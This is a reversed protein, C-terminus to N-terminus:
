DDTLNSWLAAQGILPWEREADGRSFPNTALGLYRSGVLTTGHVIIPASEAKRDRDQWLGAVFTSDVSPLYRGDVTAGTPLSAFWTVNSPLYLNDRAPYAGTLPSSAGVNDWLAIGGGAGDSGQTLNGKILAPHAGALFAFNSASQSTAIYGGGREFFARLRDRATNGQPYTQGVNYIVDFSELPDTAANQLSNSGSTTSVFGVDPGFIQRLSWSTDSEVPNGSDVLIAIRPAEDLQTGAPTMGLGREFFVGAAKGAAELAVVTAADDPFIVSGAPMSGTSVSTFAAEAVEGDVGSRLVDLVARLEATGKVTLAYWDAPGSRVGGQLENVDTAPTTAPNFSADDAPIEVVDAGWLSGHSWAGPPAYLQSIRESIDQGATLATYAFGRFAQRMSVIYSGAPFTTGAWVVDAQTRGVEVGNHLLWEVLRNAEADSRQAGRHPSVQDATGGVFPIVFAKPYEVMWNHQNETFGRGAVLPDDCCNVRAAGTVGRRFIELQDDLIASRNGLWFRASSYFVLYQERKSGLRGGCAADDCMEVTSGDVGFFAGYTQSYFPGWDDWGEAVEPGGNKSGSVGRADWQNVPRQISRGIAEIAAQNADLRRQNWYLFKDYEFGPNHPKTLGDVLTPNYYGHMFLGVPALWQLQFATNARIELQSQVLLDRNLDFRNENQRRGAVRGDPNTTPIVVVLAHDLLEDVADNTGHPLTVLDRIVQMMADTGEREGGHINAEVFIPLKVQDGWSALLAQATAPDTLMLGRLQQWRAYAAQQEPTELANVVVGFMDRGLESEGIVSYTLRNPVGAAAAEAKFQELTCGIAGYPILALPTSQPVNEGAASACWTEGYTPGLGPSVPNGDWPPGTQAAAPSSFAIAAVVLAVATSISVRSPRRVAGYM